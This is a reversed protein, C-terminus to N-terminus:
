VFWMHFCINKEVIVGHSPLPSPAYRPWKLVVKHHREEPKCALAAELLVLVDETPGILSQLVQRNKKVLATKTREPHMPDLYIVSPRHEVPCSRIYAIADAHLVEIALRNEEKSNREWADELIAFMMPHRELMTVKAGFSALIMGDRGFGATADLIHMGPKPKCAKILGQHQSRYHRPKWVKESFDACIPDFGPVILYLAGDIRELKTKPYM